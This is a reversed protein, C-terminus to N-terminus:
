RMENMANQGYRTKSPWVDSTALLMPYSLQVYHCLTLFFQNIITYPSHYSKKHMVSEMFVRMSASYVAICIRFSVILKIVHVLGGGGRRMKRGIGIEIEIETVIGIEIVIGTNMEIDMEGREEGVLLVLVLKEEDIGDDDGM